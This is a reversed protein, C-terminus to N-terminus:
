PLSIIQTPKFKMEQTFEHQQIALQKLQKISRDAVKAM